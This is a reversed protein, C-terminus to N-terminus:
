LGIFKCPAAIHHCYLLSFLSSSLLSLAFLSSKYIIPASHRDTVFTIIEAVTLNIYSLLLLRDTLNAGRETAKQGPEDPLMPLLKNSIKM